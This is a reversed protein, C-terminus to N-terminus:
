QMKRETTSDVEAQVVALIIHITTSLIAPTSVPRKASTTIKKGLFISTNILALLIEFIYVIGVRFHDKEKLFLTRKGKYQWDELSIAVLRTGTKWPSSERIKQQSPFRITPIFICYSTVCWQLGLVSLFM